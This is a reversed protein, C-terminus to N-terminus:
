HRPPSAARAKRSPPALSGILVRNAVRNAWSFADHLDLFQSLQVSVGQARARVLQVILQEAHAQLLRHSLELRRALHLVDAALPRADQGNQFFLGLLWAPCLR